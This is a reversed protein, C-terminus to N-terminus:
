SSIKLVNTKFSEVLDEPIEKFDIIKKNLMYRKMIEPDKLKEDLLNPSEYYKIATKIGCGKYIAPINDSKDGTIIKCFLNKEGSDFATKSDSLKKYKLNYIHVNERMLQLYDMDSTIIYIEADSYKELIHQVTIAICDDAELGDHKLFTNCGANSYLENYAMKFFPKGEFDDEYERQAKYESIHEMRWINKRPCDKGIMTVCNGLKLKKPIEKFKNVFASKFASVFIENEFPVGLEEDRHANKWWLQLAYFRYFIYYSGDILLFKM